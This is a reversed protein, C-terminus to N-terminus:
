PRTWCHTVPMERDCVVVGPVHFGPLWRGACRSSWQGGSSRFADCTPQRVVVGVSSVETVVPVSVALVVAVGLGAVAEAIM